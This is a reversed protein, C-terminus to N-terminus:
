HGNAPMITSLVSDFAARRGRTTVGAGHRLTALKNQNNIYPSLVAQLAFFDFDLEAVGDVVRAHAPCTISNEVTLLGSTLMSAGGVVPTGSGLSLAPTNGLNPRAALWLVLDAQAFYVPRLDHRTAQILKFRKGFEKAYRYLRRTALSALASADYLVVIAADAHTKVLTAAFDVAGVSTAAADGDLLPLLLVVSSGCREVQKVTVPAGADWPLLLVDSCQWRRRALTLMDAGVALVCDMSVYTMRHELRAHQQLLLGTNTARARISALLQPVTPPVTWIIHACGQTWLEFDPLTRVWVVDADHNTGLARPKTASRISVPIGRACAWDALRIAATAPAGRCYDTYIGLM